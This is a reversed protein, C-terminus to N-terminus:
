LTALIAPLVSAGLLRSREGSWGQVPDPMNANDKFPMEVTFALCGFHQAIWNTALSLNAAGAAMPEYGYDSQFDPCSAIWTAKFQDELEAVRPSYSPVGESGVVFNYPLVEDGHVDLSLDVGIDLMRQRVLFVEPSLEMSPASWERNLNTGMANTRLNGLVAGDPNMHPVVYFVSRQRLARAVADAGDLLRELM